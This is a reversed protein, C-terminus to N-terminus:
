GGNRAYIKTLALLALLAQRRLLWAAARHRSGYFFLIIYSYEDV